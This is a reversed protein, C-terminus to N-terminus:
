QGLLSKEISEQAKENFFSCDNVWNTSEANITGYDPHLLQKYPWAALIDPLLFNIAKATSLAITQAM